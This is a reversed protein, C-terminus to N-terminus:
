CDPWDCCKSYCTVIYRSGAFARNLIAASIGASLKAGANIPAEQNYATRCELAIQKSCYNSLYPKNKQGMEICACELMFKWAHAPLKHVTMGYTGMSLALFTMPYTM